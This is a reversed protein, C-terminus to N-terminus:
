DWFGNIRKFFGEANYETYHKGTETHIIEFTPYLGVGLDFTVNYGKKIAESQAIKEAKRYYVDSNDPISGGSNNYLEWCQAAKHIIKDIKNEMNRWYEDLVSDHSIIM